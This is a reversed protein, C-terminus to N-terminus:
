SQCAHTTQPFQSITIFSVKKLLLYKSSAGKVLEFSRHATFYDTIQKKLQYSDMFSRLYPSFKVYDMPVNRYPLPQRSHTSMDDLLSQMAHYSM